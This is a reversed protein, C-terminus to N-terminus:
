SRLIDIFVGILILVMLGRFWWTQWWSPNVVFSYSILQPPFRAAPFEAKLRITYNGPALSVFHFAAESSPVSWQHNSAGSLMYSYRVEKENYFFPAAVFFSINNQNHTFHRFTDNAQYSEKGAIIQSIFFRPTKAPITDERKHVRM